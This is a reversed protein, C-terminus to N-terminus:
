EYDSVQDAAFPAVCPKIGGTGFAIVALGSFDLVYRGWQPLM